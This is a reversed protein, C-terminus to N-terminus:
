CAKGVLHNGTPFSIRIAFYISDKLNLIHLYKLKQGHEMEFFLSSVLEIPPVNIIRLSKGKENCLVTFLAPFLVNHKYRMNRFNYM